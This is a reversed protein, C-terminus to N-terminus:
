GLGGLLSCIGPQGPYCLQGSYGEPRKIRFTAVLREPLIEDMGLCQLQEYSTNANTQNLAALAAALDLGISKWVQTQTSLSKLNFGGASTLAADLEQTAFRHTEVLSAHIASTIPM